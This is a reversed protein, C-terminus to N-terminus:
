FEFRPRILESLTSESQQLPNSILRSHEVWLEDFTIRPLDYQSAAEAFGDQLETYGVLKRPNADPDMNVVRQPNKNLDDEWGEGELDIAKTKVLAKIVHTDLPVHLDKEWGENIQLVHVAKRLLENAIKPGLDDIERINNFAEKRSNCSLFEGPDFDESLARYESPSLSWARNQIAIDFLMQVDEEPSEPDIGYVDTYLSREREVHRETVGADVFKGAIENLTDQKLKM